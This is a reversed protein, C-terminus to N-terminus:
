GFVETLGQDLIAFGGRLEAETICLPPNCMFSGWRFFTFLGHSLCYANLAKMKPSSGNYPAARSGDPNQLDVMGFLGIGRYAQVCTHKAKLKGMEDLMVAELTAANEIMKENILVDIAAEAAALSLCHATYTLGSRFENKRFYDAIKDSVMMCGLPAYSSTLGKATTMIDPVIGYHETAFLKGTRGWGSMVEDCVLLIGHKDLIAKLGKFWGKPPPMAGNSGVVPEVFFAAITHPGEYMIQEELHQLHNATIEEDTDGFSFDYPKPPMFHVFGPAGPENYWRRPDGTLQMAANTAGHYSRYSSFIKFRGTYARAAKIANENSEAGGLTYFATNLDGPCIEALKKSLRARVATAAKSHVFILEDIQAKMAAKVKPHAHGINVCMAQSNFDLWKEGDPGYMWVGETRAIPMPVVDDGKAWSWISHKDCLRIMEDTSMKDSM